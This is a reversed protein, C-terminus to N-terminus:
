GSFVFQRSRFFNAIGIVIEIFSVAPVDALPPGALAAVPLYAVVTPFPPGAPIATSPIATSPSASVAATLDAAVAFLLFLRFLLLFILRFLLLFILRFSLLPLGAPIAAPSGTTGFVWQTSVLLLEISRSTWGGSTCFLTESETMIYTQLM